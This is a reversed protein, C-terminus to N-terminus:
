IPSPLIGLGALVGALAALLALVFILPVLWKLAPNM